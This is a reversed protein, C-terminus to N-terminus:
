KDSQPAALTVLSLDGFLTWNSGFCTWSLEELASTPPSGCASYQSTGQKLLSMLSLWLQPEEQLYISFLFFVFGYQDRNKGHKLMLFM